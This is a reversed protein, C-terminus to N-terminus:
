DILDISTIPRIYTSEREILYSPVYPTTGVRSDRSRGRHVLDCHTFWTSIGGCQKWAVKSVRFMQDPTPEQDIRFEFGLIEDFACDRVVLLVQYYEYPRFLHKIFNKLRTYM